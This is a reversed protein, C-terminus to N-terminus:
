SETTDAAVNLRWELETALNTLATLLSANTPPDFVLKVRLYVLTKVQNLKPDNPIFDDWTASSNDIFFGEKPGVGLQTLTALATNIHLAIDGDFCDYDEEIGLLQKISTLISEM